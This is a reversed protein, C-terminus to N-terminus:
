MFLCSDSKALAEGVSVHCLVDVMLLVNLGDPCRVFLTRLFGTSVM